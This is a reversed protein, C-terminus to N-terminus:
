IKKVIAESSNEDNGNEYDIYRVEKGSKVPYKFQEPQWELDGTNIVKANPIQWHYKQANTTITFILTAILLVIRLKLTNM